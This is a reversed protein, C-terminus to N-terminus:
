AAAAEPSTKEAVFSLEALRREAAAYNEIELLQRLEADTRATTYLADLARSRPSSYKGEADHRYEDSIGVLFRALFKVRRKWQADRAKKKRWAAECKDILESPEPLRHGEGTYISALETDHPWKGVSVNLGYNAPAFHRALALATVAALTATEATAVERSTKERHERVALFDILTITFKM